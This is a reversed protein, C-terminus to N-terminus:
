SPAYPQLGDPKTRQYRRDCKDCGYGEMYDPANPGGDLDNFWYRTLKQDRCEPCRLDRDPVEGEYQRGRYLDRCLWERLGASRMESIFGAINASLEVQRVLTQNIRITASWLGVVAVVLAFLLFTVVLM